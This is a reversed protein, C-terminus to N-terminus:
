FQKYFISLVDLSEFRTVHVFAGPSLHEGYRPMKFSSSLVASDFTEPSDDCSYGPFLVYIM